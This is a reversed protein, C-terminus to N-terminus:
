SWLSADGCTTSATSASSTLLAQNSGSMDYAPATTPQAKYGVNVSSSLGYATGSFNSGSGLVLIFLGSWQARTYNFNVKYCVKYAGPPVALNDAISASASNSYSGGVRVWKTRAASLNAAYSPHCQTVATSGNSATDLAVQMQVNTVSQNYYSYDGGVLGVGIASPRSVTTMTANPKIQNLWFTPTDTLTQYSAWTSNTLSQPIQVYNASTGSTVYTPDNVRCPGAYASYQTTTPYLANNLGSSSPLFMGNPSGFFYGNAPAKTPDIDTHLVQWYPKGNSDVVLKNASGANLTNSGTSSTMYKWVPNVTVNNSVTVTTSRLVGTPMTYGATIVGATNNLFINQLSSATVNITYQGPQLGTFLYCGYTTNSAAKTITQNTSNLTLTVDGIGTAAAAAGAPGSL